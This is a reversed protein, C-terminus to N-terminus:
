IDWRTVEDGDTTMKCASTTVFRRFWLFWLRKEESVAIGDFVLSKSDVSEDIDNCENLWSQCGAEQYEAVM